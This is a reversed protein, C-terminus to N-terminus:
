EGRNYLTEGNRLIEDLISDGLRLRRELEDPTVVFSDMSVKPAAEACVKRVRKRRKEVDETTQLVILLDVDVANEGGYEPAIRVIKEPTLVEVLRKAMAQAAANTADPDHM